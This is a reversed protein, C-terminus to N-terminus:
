RGVCCDDGMGLLGPVNAESCLLPLGTFPSTVWSAGTGVGLSCDVGTDKRFSVGLSDPPTSRGEIAFGEGSRMNTIGAPPRPLADELFDGQGPRADRLVLRVLEVVAPGPPLGVFDTAGVGVRSTSRKNTSFRAGALNMHGMEPRM